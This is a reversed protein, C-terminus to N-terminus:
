KDVKISCKIYESDNKNVVDIIMKSYLYEHSKITKRFLDTKIIFNDSENCTLTVYLDYKDSNNYLTIDIENSKDLLSSDVLLYNDKLINNLYINPSSADKIVVDDIVKAKSGELFIFFIFVIGIITLM